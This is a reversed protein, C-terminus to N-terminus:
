PMLLGPARPYLVSDRINYIGLLWCVFREIGLGMGGHPCSGFKRTDLYWYYSEVPLGGEQFAKLTDEYGWKRMSGGVVEGVTPVLLDVSETLRYEPSAPDDSCRQMYFSKLHSPFHTLFVPEGITDIMRREQAEPIDDDETFPEGDDRMVGQENLWRIAESHRMRRFPKRVMAVIKDFEEGNLQQVLPYFTKDRSLELITGRVFDEIIKLLDDFTIFPHETELHTFESLHRRTHSKEARYSSLMCYCDGLAPLVSELYLQSSQTLYAEQGYYDLKFLTSGGECETNVITPPTVETWGKFFFHNRFARLIRGRVRLIASGKEGRHVLHRERARIDLGSDPTLRTEFEGSSTGIIEFHDAHVEYGGQARADQMVTGIVRVSAETKLQTQAMKNALCAEDLVVQCFGTGDRLVVFVLKASSVRVRHCWGYVAVPGDKKWYPFESIKLRTAFPGSYPPMAEPLNELAAASLAQQEQRRREQEQESFLKKYKTHVGKILKKVRKNPLESGDEQRMEAIEAIEKEISAMFHQYYPQTHDDECEVADHHQRSM